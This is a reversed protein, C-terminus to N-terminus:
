APEAQLTRRAPATSRGAERLLLRGIAEPAEDVGTYNPFENVDVVVPGDSSELVDLGFLILGFEDRCARVLDRLAPTVPAAVATDPEGSLPSPRRVGWVEEGAVYVKLDVGGAEVYRQALVLDESWAISALEEPDEVVHLGRGNDGLVPKLVLPFARGPLRALDAPRHALFTPPVPIGRRALASTCRVKDRVVLIASSRDCTRAGFAEAQELLALAFPHRSRTVVLDGPELGSWPPHTSGLPSPWAPENVLDGGDAVVLGPVIGGAVTLWEYLALPM